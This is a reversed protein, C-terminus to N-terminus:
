ERVLWACGTELRLELHNDNTRACLIQPRIGAEASATTLRNGDLEYGLTFEARQGEVLIQYILEGGARFEMCTGPLMGTGEQAHALRWRGLLWHPSLDVDTDYM